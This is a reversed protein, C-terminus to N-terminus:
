SARRAEVSRDGQGSAVALPARAPRRRLPVGKLWLRLAQWHIAAM